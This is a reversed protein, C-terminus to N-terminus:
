HNAPIAIVRFFTTTAGPTEGVNGIAIFTYSKAPAFLDSAHPRGGDVLGLTAYAVSPLPISALAPAPVGLM